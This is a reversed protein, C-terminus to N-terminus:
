NPFCASVPRPSWRPVPPSRGAVLAATAHIYSKAHRLDMLFRQVFHWDSKGTTTQRGQGSADGYVYLNVPSAQALYPEIRRLFEDCHEPTATHPLSLEQLVHVLQRRRGNLMDARSQPLDIFQGILSCAPNINFDLTWWLPYRPDFRLPKVNAESFAYYASGAYINLYEGLAEQQYLRDDYSQRLSTYYDPSLFINEGPRALIAEYSALKNASIFRKYVWDKGKPTWAAFGCLYNARPDRLRGELRLWADKKCYTLEDVAFWALNRGRLREPHEGTAQRAIASLSRYYRDQYQFGDELVQVLIRQGKFSRSLVTGPPPRRPDAGRRLRSAVTPELVPRARSTQDRPATLRLDADQVLTQAQQRARESLEGESLAQLRWALRRFLFQKHNSRSPEGFLETYRARLQGVTARRLQEIQQVVASNSM